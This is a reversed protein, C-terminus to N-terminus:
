PMRRSSNSLLHAQWDRGNRSIEVMRIQADDFRLRAHVAQGEPAMRWTIVKGDLLLACQDFGDVGTSKCRWSLPGDTVADRSSVVLLPSEEATAVFPLFFMLALIVAIWRELRYDNNTATEMVLTM